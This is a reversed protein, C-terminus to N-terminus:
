GSFHYLKISKPSCIITYNIVLMSLNIDSDSIPFDNDFAEAFFTLASAKEDATALALGSDSFSIAAIALLTRRWMIEM